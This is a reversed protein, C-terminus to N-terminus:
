KQDNKNIIPRFSYAGYNGTAFLVELDSDWVCDHIPGECLISCVINYNSIKRIEIRGDFSCSAFFDENSSLSIKNVSRKNSKLKTVETLTVMDWVKIIGSFSGAFLMENKESYTCNWFPSEGDELQKILSFNAIGNRWISISSDESSTIIIEGYRSINTSVICRLSGDHIKVKKIVRNRLLDFFLLYGSGDGLLIIDDKTDNSIASISSDSINISNSLQMNNLNFIGLEGRETGFAIIGSSIEKLCLIRSDFRSGVLIPNHDDIRQLYVENNGLTYVVREGDMLLICSQVPGSHGYITRELSGDINWVKITSDESASIFKKSSNDFICSRISEYHCQYKLIVKNNELDYVILKGSEEAFVVKKANEDISCCRIQSNEFTYKHSEVYLDSINKKEWIRFTSDSSVSVIVKSDGSIDCGIVRGQHGSLTQIEKEANIDWVKVTCDESATVLFHSNISIASDSIRGSHSSFTHSLNLQNNDIKWIKVTGDESASAVIKGSFNISCTFIRTSHANEVRSRIEGSDPNWLIISRDSSSSVLFKGSSDIACSRVPASHGVLTKIQSSDQLNWLKLTNDDCASILWDKASCIACDMIRNWKSNLVINM